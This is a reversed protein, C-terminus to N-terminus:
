LEYQIDCFLPPLHMISESYTLTQEDHSVKELYNSLLNFAESVDLIQKCYASLEAVRTLCKNENRIYRQEEEARFNNILDFKDIPCKQM